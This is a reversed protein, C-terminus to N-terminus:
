SADGHPMPNQSGAGSRGSAPGEGPGLRRSAIADFLSADVGRYTYPAVVRSQKLLAGVAARDLRAGRAGAAWGEFRDAPMAVSDFKMDPFGDGSFQASLGLYTGPEDAELNLQSVMGNMAYIMSGLRPVFFVNFVSASTIRFHLPRGTPVVLRNVSAIRQEPYIFLWKWDFAVADIELPKASSPLPEFPDLRHSGIWIVGGLFFITLTPISWVILEIRGSYAFDPRYVARSNSARYWWAFALTVIITPVVIALMIVLADLLIIADGRGVPGVPEFISDACALSPALAVAALCLLARQVATAIVPGVPKM